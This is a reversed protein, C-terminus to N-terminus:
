LIDDYRFQKEAEDGSWFGWGAQEWRPDIWRRWQDAPLGAQQPNRGIYQVCRWLHEEDRVIRDYSEEQWM